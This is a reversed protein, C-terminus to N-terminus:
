KTNKNIWDLYPKYGHTIPFFIIEPVDYSHIKKVLNTIDGNLGSKSKGILLWEQATEIKGQWRFVSKIEPLLSVCAALRKEILSSAINEAEKQEPATIYFM